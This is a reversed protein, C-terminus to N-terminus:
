AIKISFLHDNCNFPVFRKGSEAVRREGLRAAYPCSKGARGSARQEGNMGGNRGAEQRYMFLSASNEGGALDRRGENLREGDAASPVM